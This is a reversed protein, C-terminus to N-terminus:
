LNNFYEDLTEKLCDLCSNIYTNDYNNEIMKKREAENSLFGFEILFSPVVTDRVVAYNDSEYPKLKIKFDDNTSSLSDLKKYYSDLINKTIAACEHTDYYYCKFGFASSNKAANLHLSIFVIYEEINPLCGYNNQMLKLENISHQVRNIKNEGVDHKKEDKDNIKVYKDKDIRTLKINYKDKLINELKRSLIYTGDSEKINDHCAGPDNGGHGADIIVVPKINQYLEKTGLLAHTIGYRNYLAPSKIYAFIYLKAPADKNELKKKSSDSLIDEPKFAIEEGTQSIPESVKSIIVRGRYESDTLVAYCWKIHSSDKVNKTVAKVKYETSMFDSQEPLNNCSPSVQEVGVVLGQPIEQSTIKATVEVQKAERDAHNILCMDHSLFNALRLSCLDEYYFGFVCKTNYAMNTTMNLRFSASAVDGQLEIFTDIVEGTEVNFLYYKTKDICSFDLMNLALFNVKVDIEGSQSVAKQDPNVSEQNSLIIGCHKNAPIYNLLTVTTTKDYTLIIKNENLIYEVELKDNDKHKYFYSSEEKEFIYEGSINVANVEATKTYLMIRFNTETLNEVTLTHSRDKLVYFTICVNDYSSLIDYFRQHQNDEMISIILIEVKDEEKKAELRSQLSNRFKKDNSNKTVFIEDLKYDVDVIGKSFKENMYILFPNLINKHSAFDLVGQKYDEQNITSNNPLLGLVDSIKTTTNYFFIYEDSISLQIIKYTEAVSDVHQCHSHIEMFELYSYGTGYGNLPQNSTHVILMEINLYNFIDLASNFLNIKGKEDKEVLEFLAAEHIRRKVFLVYQNDRTVSVLDIYYRIGFWTLFRSNNTSIANAFYERPDKYNDFKKTLQYYNGLFALVLKSYRAFSSPFISKSHGTTLSEILDNYIPISIVSFIEVAEEKTLTFDFASLKNDKYKAGNLTNITDSIAKNVSLELLLARRHALLEDSVENATTQRNQTLIQQNNTSSSSSNAFSHKLEEITVLQNNINPIQKDNAEIKYENKVNSICTAIASSIDNIADLMDIDNLFSNFDDNSNDIDSIPKFAGLKFACIYKIKDIEEVNFGIGLTIVGQTDAYMHSDFVGDVNIEGHMILSYKLDNFSKIDLDVNNM